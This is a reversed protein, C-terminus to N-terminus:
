CGTGSFALRSKRAPTESADRWKQTSWNLSRPARYLDVVRRQRIWGNFALCYLDPLNFCCDTRCRVRECGRFSVSFAPNPHARGGQVRFRRRLTLFLGL